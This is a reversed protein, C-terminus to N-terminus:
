KVEIAKEIRGLFGNTNMHSLCSSCSSIATIFAWLVIWGLADVIKKGYLDNM